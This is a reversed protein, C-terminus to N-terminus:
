GEEWEVISLFMNPESRLLELVFVDLCCTGSMTAENGGFKQITEFQFCKQHFAWFSALLVIIGCGHGFDVIRNSKWCQSHLMDLFVECHVTGSQSIMSLANDQSKTNSKTGEWLKSEHDFTEFFITIWNNKQAAVAKRLSQVTTKNV